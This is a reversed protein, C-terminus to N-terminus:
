FKEHFIYKGQIGKIDKAGFKLDSDKLRQNNM